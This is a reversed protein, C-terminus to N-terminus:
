KPVVLKLKILINSLFHIRIGTSNKRIKRWTV